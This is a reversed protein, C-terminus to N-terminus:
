LPKPFYSDTDILVPSLEREDPLRDQHPKFMWLWYRSELAQQASKMEIAKFRLGNVFSRAYALTTADAQEWSRLGCDILIRNETFETFRALREPLIESGIAVVQTRIRRLEDMDLPPRATPAQVPAGVERDLIDLVWRRFEAAVPTRAFMALLHAGRLSFIRVATPCPSGTVTLKVTVTMSDSFEEANREYVRTVLDTRAYGLAGALEAATLWIQGNRSVPNFTTDRFALAPARTTALM